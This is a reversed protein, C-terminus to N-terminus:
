RQPSVPECCDVYVSASSSRPGASRQRKFFTCEAGAMDIWQGSWNELYWRQLIMEYSSFRGKGSKRLTTITIAERTGFAPGEENTIWGKNNYFFATRITAHM